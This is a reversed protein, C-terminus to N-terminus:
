IGSGKRYQMTKKALERINHLLLKKDVSSAAHNESVERPKIPNTLRWKSIEQAIEQDRNTM